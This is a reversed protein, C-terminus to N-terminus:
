PTDVTSAEASLRDVLTRIATAESPNLDLFCVGMGTIAPPDTEQGSVWAVQGRVSLPDSLGPLTFHLALETGAAAPRDTVIFMGGESLNLCTGHATTGAQRYEVDIQVPTRTHVRRKPQSVWQRVLSPDVSEEFAVGHPFRTGLGTPTGDGVSVVHGRLPNSGNVELSVPTEVPLAEPLLIELGGANVNRTVGDLLQPQAQEPSLVTCQVPLYRAFRLHRRYHLTPTKPDAAM